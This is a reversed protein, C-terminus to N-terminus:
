IRENCIVRIVKDDLGNINVTFRKDKFGVRMGIIEYTGPKLYILDEAFPGFVGVRTISIKTKNDSLFKIPVPKEYFNILTILEQLLARFKPGPSYENIINKGDNITVIAEKRINFDFTRDKNILYGDIKLKINIIESVRLFGDQALEINNDLSLVNKYNTLANSWNEKKELDLASRLFFDIKLRKDIALIRDLGKKALQSEPKIKLAKKFAPIGSLPDLREIAENGTKMSISFDRESVLSNIEKLAEIAIKNKQDKLYANNIKIYAEDLLEDGILNKAQNIENIIENYVRARELGEIVLPNNPEILQAEEFKEKAQGIEGKDLFELGLRLGENLIEAAEKILKKSFSETILLEEYAKLYREANFSRNGIEFSKILKEYSEKNWIKANKKELDQIIKDLSSILKMANFRIKCFETDKDKDLCDFTRNEENQSIKDDILTEDAVFSSIFFLFLGILVCLSLFGLYKYLTKRQQDQAEKAASLFNDNQDISM